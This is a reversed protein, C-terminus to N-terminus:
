KSQGITSESAAVSIKMRDAEQETLKQAKAYERLPTNWIYYGSTAGLFTGIIINGTTLGKIKRIRIMNVSQLSLSSILLDLTLLTQVCKLKGFKFMVKAGALFNYFTITFSDM